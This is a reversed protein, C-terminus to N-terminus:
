LPPEHDAAKGEHVKTDKTTLFFRFWSLCSPERLFGAAQQM